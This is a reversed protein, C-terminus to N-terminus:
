VSKLFDRHDIARVSLAFETLFRQFGQLSYILLLLEVQNSVGVELCLTHIIEETREPSLTLM